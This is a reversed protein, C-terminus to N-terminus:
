KARRLLTAWTCVPNFMGCRDHMAQAVARETRDSLDCFNDALFQEFTQRYGHVNERFWEYQKRATEETIIRDYEYDYYKKAKM